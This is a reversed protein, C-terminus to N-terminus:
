FLISLFKLFINFRCYNLIQKNSIEASNNAQQNENYKDDDDDVISIMDTYYFVKIRKMNNQNKWVEIKEILATDTKDKEYDFCIYSKIYKSLLRRYLLSVLESPMVRRNKLIFTKLRGFLNEVINNTIRTLLHCIIKDKLLFFPVIKM